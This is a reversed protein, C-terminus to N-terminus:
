KKYNVLVKQDHKLDIGEVKIIEVGFKKLVELGDLVSYGTAYYLKKIGSYAILKACPPCPFTSVYISAGELKIGKNAAEAIAAAEGHIASSIEIGVGKHFVSRPDGAFAQAYENPLHKNYTYLIPKNNKIIITGVRRWWDTSKQANSFAEKLIKKDFSQKSIKTGPDPKQPKTSNHKDWMLFTKKFDTNTFNYEKAIGRTIEEDPLVIKDYENKITNLEDPKIVKVENFLNLQEVMLKATQPDLARIEKKMWPFHKVFENGLIFLDANQSSEKFFKLYGNHMVPLYCILAKKQM